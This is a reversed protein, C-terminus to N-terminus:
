PDPEGAADPSGAGAPSGDGAQSLFARITKREEEDKIRTFLREGLERITAPRDFPLREHMKGGEFHCPMCRAELIPRVESAFDVRVEAGAEPAAARSSTEADDALGPAGAGEISTDPAASADGPRAGELGTPTRGPGCAVLSAALAFALATRM